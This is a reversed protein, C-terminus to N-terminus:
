STEEEIKRTNFHHALTLPKIRMFKWEFKQDDFVGKRTWKQCKELQFVFSIAQNLKGQSSVQNLEGHLTYKYTAQHVNFIFLIIFSIAIEICNM